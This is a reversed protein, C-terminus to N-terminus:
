RKIKIEFGKVLAIGRWNLPVFNPCAKVLRKDTTVIIVIGELAGHIWVGRISEVRWKLLPDSTWLDLNSTPALNWCHKKLKKILDLTLFLLPGSLSPSEAGQLLLLLLHSYKLVLRPAALFSVLCLFVQCPKAGFEFMIRNAQSPWCRRYDFYFEIWPTKERQGSQAHQVESKNEQGYSQSVGSLQELWHGARLGPLHCTQQWNTWSQGFAQGTGTNGLWHQHREMGQRGKEQVLHNKTAM